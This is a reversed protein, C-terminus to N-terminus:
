TAETPACWWGCEVLEEVVREIGEDADEVLVRELLHDLDLALFLRSLGAAGLSRHGSSVGGAAARQRDRLTASHSDKSQFEEFSLKSPNWDDIACKRGISEQRPFPNSVDMACCARM